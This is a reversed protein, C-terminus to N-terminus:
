ILGDSVDWSPCEPYFGSSLLNPKKTYIYIISDTNADNRKAAPYNNRALRKNKMSTIRFLDICRMFLM